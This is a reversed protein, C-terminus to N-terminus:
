PGHGAESEGHERLVDCTNRLERNHAQQRALADDLFAQWAEEGQRRRKLLPYRRDRHLAAEARDLEALQDALAESWTTLRQFQATLDEKPTREEWVAGWPINVLLDGLGTRPDRCREQLTIFLAADREDIDPDLVRFVHELLQDKALAERDVERSEEPELTERILPEADQAQGGAQEPEVTTPGSAVAARLAAIEAQLRLTIRREPGLKVLYADYALALEAELPAMVERRQHIRARSDRIDALLVDIDGQDRIRRKGM